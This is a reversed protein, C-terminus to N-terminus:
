GLFNAGLLLPVMVYGTALVLCCGFRAHTGADELGELIAHDLDLWGHLIDFGQTLAVSCGAATFSKDDLSIDLAFLADRDYPVEPLHNSLHHRARQLARLHQRQKTSQRQIPIRGASQWYFDRPRAYAASMRTRFHPSGVTAAQVPALCHACLQMTILLAQAERCAPFYGLIVELRGFMDRLETPTRPVRRHRPTWHPATVHRLLVAPPCLFNRRLIDLWDISPLARSFFVALTRLCRVESLSLSWTGLSLATLAPFHPVSAALLVGVTALTVHQDRIPELAPLTAASPAFLRIMLSPPPLPLTLEPGMAGSSTM